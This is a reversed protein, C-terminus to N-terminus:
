RAARIGTLRWGDHAWRLDVLVQEGASAARPTRTGSGVVDYAGTGLRARLVASAGVHSVTAVGEVTYRLGAYRLGARALGEVATTDRALLTSGPAEASRLLRPDGARWAAARAEALAELLVHPRDTPAGRESLSRAASPTRGPAVARPGQPDASGSGSTAAAPVPTGSRVVAVGLGGAAVVAVGLAVVLAWSSPRRRAPPAHRGRVRRTEDASAPTSAAARLRYTVASVEDDGEVLHLPVPDAARFLAWALEVADPREDAHAAVASELVEVLAAAGPGARNLEALVPRLGPPGPPAGVLCLWGLAGLAYVDAAPSPDGGMLVEPAVYGETGWVAAPADGTVRGTGLDALSPRGDLDLLVNGPSVDGHVAGLRHLRGVAGAVPALVTVVEGPALHGRAAVLGALNGGRLLPMVLAVRGDSLPLCAEVPVVHADAAAAALSAERAAAEACSHDVRAVKVAVRRGDAERVGEWVESTGGRAVLRGLEFGPVVPAPTTTEGM